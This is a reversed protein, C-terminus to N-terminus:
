PQRDRTVKEKTEKRRNRRQQKIKGTKRSIGEVEQGEREVRIREKRGTDNKDREERTSTSKSFFPGLPVGGM